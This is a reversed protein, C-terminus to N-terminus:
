GGAAAAAPAFAAVIETILRIDEAADELTAEIEAGNVIAHWLSLWESFYPDRASETLSFPEDGAGYCLLRTPLHRVYPNDYQIRWRRDGTFIEIHADFQGVQDNGTEFNTTFSGHDFLASIYRGNRKCSAGIVRKPKGVLGRMASLDHSCLRNLHRYANIDAESASGIAARVQRDARETRECAVAAPIDNAVLLTKKRDVFYANPGVIARVSVHLIEPMPDLAAKLKRYPDAHRRMYGVMVKRQAADRAAIMAAADALNLCIPKELLVHCGARLASIAADTHYEDSNLVAVVDLQERALMAELSPHVRPISYRAAVAEAHSLSLDCGAVVEFREPMTRLVPLHVIQAVLGLGVVGVRLKAM